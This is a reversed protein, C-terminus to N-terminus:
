ALKEVKNFLNGLNNWIEMAHSHAAEGRGSGGPVLQLGPILPCSHAILFKPEQIEWGSRWNGLGGQVLGM